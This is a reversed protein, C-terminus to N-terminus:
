LTLSKKLVVLLASMFDIKTWQPEWSWNVLPMPDIKVGDKYVEWHLHTGREPDKTREELPVYVGGQFVNGANGMYAVIQGRKVTDGGWVPVIPLIHWYLYTLGTELGKLHIGYGQELQEPHALEAETFRIVLCNEPACLPTGYLQGIPTSNEVLDWAEHGAHFIQTIDDKTMKKFPLTLINQM